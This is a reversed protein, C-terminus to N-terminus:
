MKNISTINLLPFALACINTKGTAAKSAAGKPEYSETSSYGITEKTYFWAM